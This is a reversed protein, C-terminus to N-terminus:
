PAWEQWALLPDVGIGDLSTLILSPERVVPIFDPMLWILFVVMMPGQKSDINLSMLRGGESVGSIGARARVVFQRGENLTDHTIHFRRPEGRLAVARMLEFSRDQMTMLLVDRLRVLAGAVDLQEALQPHVVVRCKFGLPAGIETVDVLDVVPFAPQRQAQVQRLATMYSEGTRAQRERVRRKLDRKETM